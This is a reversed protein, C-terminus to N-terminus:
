RVPEVVQSVDCLGTVCPSEEVLLVEGVDGEDWRTEDVGSGDRTQVSGSVRGVSTAVDVASVVQHFAIVQTMRGVVVIQSEPHVKSEIEEEGSDHEHGVDDEVDNRKRGEDLAFEAISFNSYILGGSIEIIWIEVIKNHLIEHAIYIYIFTYEVIKGRSLLSFCWRLTPGM